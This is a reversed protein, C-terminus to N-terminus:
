TKTDDHTRPRVPALSRLELSIFKESIKLFLSVCASLQDLVTKQVSLTM